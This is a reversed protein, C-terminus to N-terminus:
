VVLIAREPLPILYDNAGQDLGAVRDPVEDRATLLIVPANLGAQRIRRLVELGSLEPLLIDLLMLDWAEEQALRLGERGDAARATEYGEHELELTLARAILDDDEIILIRVM